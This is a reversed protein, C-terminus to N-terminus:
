DDSDSHTTFPLDAYFSHYTKDIIGTKCLSLLDKYKAESIAPPATYLQPVEQAHRNRASRRANEFVIESTEGEYEYCYEIKDNMYIFRKIKMWKILQGDTSKKLSCPSTFDRFFSTDVTHVVYPNEKRALQVITGYQSPAHRAAREITAHVSDVEMQSHGTEMYTHEIREIHTTQVLHHLMATMNRNRNQGGCADLYLKIKTQPQQKLYDALCSAIENSGRKGIAEHWM